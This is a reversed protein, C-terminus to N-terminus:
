PVDLYHIHFIHDDHNATKSPRHNLIPFQNLNNVNPHVQIDNDDCDEDSFFGDGDVDSVGIVIAATDEETKTTSNCAVALVWIWSRM